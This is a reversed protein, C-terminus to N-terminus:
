VVFLTMSLTPDAIPRAIVDGREIERAIAGLPMVSAAAGRLVLDRQGAISHTEYKIRPAVGRQLALDSVLRRAVDRENGQVLDYHLVEEMWVPDHGAALDARIVFLLQERMVPMLSLEPNAEVCYALVAD